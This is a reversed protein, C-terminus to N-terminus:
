GNDRQAIGVTAHTSNAEWSSSTTLCVGVERDTSIHIIRSTREAFEHGILRNRRAIHKIIEHMRQKPHPRHAGALLYRLRIVEDTSSASARVAPCFWDCAVIKWFM